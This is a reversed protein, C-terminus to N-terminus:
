YVSYSVGGKMSFTDTLDAPAILDYGTGGGAFNGALWFVYGTSSTDLALGSKAVALNSYSDIYGSGNKSDSPHNFPLGSLQVYSGTMSGKSSLIVRFGLFVQRGIRTYVGEATSLTAENGSWDRVKPTWTGEEYHSLTTGTATAGTASSNTQSFAIGGYFTALKDSALKMAEGSGNGAPYFQLTGNVDHGIITPGNNAFTNGWRLERATGDPGIQIGGTGDIKFASTGSGTNGTHRVEFATQSATSGGAIILAGFGSAHTNQSKFSWDGNNDAVTDVRGTSAITLRTSGGTQLALDNATANIRSTGTGTPTLNIRPGMNTGNGEILVVDDYGSRGHVDLRYGSTATRALGVAGNADITLKTDNAFSVDADDGNSDVAFRLEGIGYSGTRKLGIAAKARRTGGHVGFYVPAIDANVGHANQVRIGDGIAEGTTDCEVSLQTDAASTNGIKVDGSANITLRTQSQADDVIFFSNAAAGLYYRGTSSNTRELYLQDTSDVKTAKLTQSKITGSAEIDGDAPTAATASTGGIRMATSNLQKIVQTQKIGSSSMEGDVNNTSRDVVMRSQNENAFALDYDTVCGIQEVKIATFSFTVNNTDQSEINLAQLGTSSHSFKQEVVFTTPTTTLTIQKAAESTETSSTGIGVVKSGSACSGTVTVRHNFGSNLLSNKFIGKGGDTNAGTINIQSGSHGIAAGSGFASFGDVGSSFNSTYRATGSGYQDAFDVDAREFLAKADALKNWTRFRYFTGLIGYDTGSGFRGVNTNGAGIDISSTSSIDVTAVSNGNKYLTLLASRDFAFVYHTPTGYDASMDYALDVDTNSGSSNTFRVNINDASIDNWFMVRSNGSTHSFYIYNDNTNDGTQNVIFEISFDSTGFEAAASNTLDVYGNNALHLGAGDSANVLERVIEGGSTTKPTVLTASM